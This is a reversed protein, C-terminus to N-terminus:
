QHCEFLDYDFRTFSLGLRRQRTQTKVEFVPGAGQQATYEPQTAQDANTGTETAALEIIGPKM